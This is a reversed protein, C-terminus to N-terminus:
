QKKKRCLRYGSEEGVREETLSRNGQLIDPCTVYIPKDVVTVLKDTQVMSRFDEITLTGYYKELIYHPAPAPLINKSYGYVGGYMFNLLHYREFKTTNDTVTDAFIFAAACQPCCFSGYVHYQGNVRSRPIYVTPTEFPYTCWFCDAKKSVDNNRLQVSLQNLKQQFTQNCSPETATVSEYTTDSSFPEVVVDVTGPVKNDDFLDRRFCKLHLIINQVPADSSEKSSTDDCAQEIIKGGKPKRGRKKVCKEM